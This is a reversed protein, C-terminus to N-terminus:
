GIIQVDWVRVPGAFVSRVPYFSQVYSDTIGPDKEFAANTRFSIIVGFRAGSGYLAKKSPKKKWAFVRFAEGPNMVGMQQINVASAMSTVHYYLNGEPESNDPKKQKNPQPSPTSTPPTYDAIHPRSLPAPIDLALNGDTTNEYIQAAVDLLALTIGTGFIIDVILGSTIAVGLVHGGADEYRVPNNACYAFLNYAVAGAGADFVSDGNLFRKVTPDYYRSNLYYFGTEVDYYYGRYRFPNLNGIQSANTIAAGSADKVSLVKGWADYAYRCQLTEYEDVIGIVDGQGNFLFYYLIGGKRLGYVRGNEDYLYQLEEGDSRKEGYAVGDILHYSTTVGGVTKEYRAGSADYKYRAAGGATLGVATM